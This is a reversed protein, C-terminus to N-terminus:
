VLEQIVADITDRRRVSPHFSFFSNGSHKGISYVKPKGTLLYSMIAAGLEGTSGSGVTEHALFIFVDCDKVGMMDEAANESTLKHYKDYPKKSEHDTWDSAISHGADEIKRYMEKVLLRDSFKAAIYIKM